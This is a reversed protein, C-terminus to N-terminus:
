PCDAEDIETIVVYKPDKVKREKRKNRVREVEM